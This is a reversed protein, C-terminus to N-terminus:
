KFRRRRQSSRLRNAWSKQYEGENDSESSSVSSFSEDDDDDYSLINNRLIFQNKSKRMSESARAKKGLHSKQNMKVKKKSRACKPNGKVRRLMMWHNAMDVDCQNEPVYEEEMPKQFEKQRLRKPMRIKKKSKRTKIKPMKIKRKVYKIVKGDRDQIEPSEEQISMNDRYEVLSKHKSSIRTFNHNFEGIKEQLYEFDMFNTAPEWTNHKNSYGKWKVFFFVNNEEIKKGMIREIEFIDSTEKKPDM